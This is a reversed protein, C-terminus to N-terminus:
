SIAKKVYIVAVGYWPNINSGAPIRSIKINITDGSSFSPTSAFSTGSGMFFNNNGSDQSATCLVIPTGGDDITLDADYLLTLDTYELERDLYFIAKTVEFDYPAEFSAFTVTPTASTPDQDCPVCFIWAEERESYSGSSIVEHLMTPTTHTVRGYSNVIRALFHTDENASHIVPGVPGDYVLNKRDVLGSILSSQAFVQLRGAGYYLPTIQYSKLTPVLDSVVVQLPDPAEDVDIVNIDETALQHRRLSLRDFYGHLYVRYVLGPAVRLNAYARPRPGLAELEASTPFYHTFVAHDWQETTGSLPVASVTFYQLKNMGRPILWSVNLYTDINNIEFGSSMSVTGLNPLQFTSLEMSSIIPISLIADPPDILMMANDRRLDTYVPVGAEFKLSGIIVKDDGGTGGQEVIDLEITPISLTNWTQGAPITGPQPIYPYPLQTSYSLTAVLDYELDENLSSFDLEAVYYSQPYYLEYNGFLISGVPVKLKDGDIYAAFADDVVVIGTQKVAARMADKLNSTECETIRGYLETLTNIEGGQFIPLRM